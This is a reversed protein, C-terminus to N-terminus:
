PGRDSGCQKQDSGKTQYLNATFLIKGSVESAVVDFDVTALQGCLSRQIVDLLNAFHYEPSYTEGGLWVQGLDLGVPGFADAEEILTQFIYGATAGSFYRGRDTQYFGLAYEASYVTSMIVGNQWVRPFDIVGGWDPLGNDFHILVRNGYRLNTETAKPDRQSLSFQCRGIDDLRWSIPGINPELEEIIRGTRDAVLFRAIGSM